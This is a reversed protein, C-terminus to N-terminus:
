RDKTAQTWWQQLDRPSMPAEGSPYTYFAGDILANGPSIRELALEIVMREVPTYLLSAAFTHAPDHEPLDLKWRVGLAPLGPTASLVVMEEDLPRNWDPLIFLQHFNRKDASLFFHQALPPPALSSRLPLYDASAKIPLDALWIPEQSHTDTFLRGGANGIYPRVNMPKGTLPLAAIQSHLTLSM